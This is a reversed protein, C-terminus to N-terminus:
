VGILIFVHLKTCIVFRSVKSSRAPSEVGKLLHRFYQVSFLFLYM